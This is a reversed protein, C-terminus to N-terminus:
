IKSTDFGMVNRYYRDRWGEEGQKVLKESNNKSSTKYILTVKM